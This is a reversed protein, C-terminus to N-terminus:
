KAIDKISRITIFYQIVGIVLIIGSLALLSISYVDLPKEKDLKIFALAVSLSLLSTRVYSLFTRMDALHTRKKALELNKNDM